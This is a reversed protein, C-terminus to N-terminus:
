SMDFETEELLLLLLLEIDSGLSGINDPNSALIFTKMKRIPSDITTKRIIHM